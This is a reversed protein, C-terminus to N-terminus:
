ELSYSMITEQDCSEGDLICMMEGEKMVAIRDCLMQLEAIESSLVLIGVDHHALENLIQYIEYKAGIDIGRTPEDIILLKLNDLMLWRSLILKQQNGGSLNKAPQALSAAKTKLKAIQEELEAQEKKKDIVGFRSFKRAASVSMNERVGLNLFLGDHKRDEPLYGVGMRCMRDSKIPNIQTGELLIDGRYLKDLGYIAEAIETKGAGVLGSIGFIEGKKISFSVNKLKHNLMGRCELLIDESIGGRNVRTNVTERGVMLKVLEEKDTEAVKLTKIKKGDRLVTIDTCIEFIEELKHSIYIISIGKEVLKEVLRFLIQTEALSLSSTPEDMIVVKANLSLVRLIEILQQQAISLEGVKQDPDIKIGLEAFMEKARKEMEKEDAVRLKRKPMRGLFLNDAVTLNEALNLEQHVIGIGKEISDKPDKFSVKEGGFYIEGEDCRYFGGLLKIFTSKGAGNEGLLAHVSGKELVFDVHDLAHVGPFSKDIGATRIIENM